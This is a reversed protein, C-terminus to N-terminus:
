EGIFSVKYKGIALDRLSVTAITNDSNFQTNSTADVSASGDIQSILVKPLKPGTPLPNGLVDVLEFRAQSKSEGVPIVNKDGKLYPIASLIKLAKM